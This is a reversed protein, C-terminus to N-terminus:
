CITIKIILLIKKEYFEERSPLNTITGDLDIIMLTKIPMKGKLGLLFLCDHYLNSKYLEENTIKHLKKLPHLKIHTFSTLQLFNIEQILNSFAKHLIKRNKEKELIYPIIRTFFDSKLFNIGQILNCLAKHLIAKNKEKKLRYAIPSDIIKRVQSSSKKFRDSKIYETLSKPTAFDIDFHIGNEDVKIKIGAGMQESTDIQANKMSGISASRKLRSPFKIEPLFLTFFPTKDNLDTKYSFPTWYKREDDLNMGGILKACYEESYGVDTNIIYPIENDDNEDSDLNNENSVKKEEESEQNENKLKPCMGISSTYTVCASFVSIALYILLNTAKYSFKNKIGSIPKNKLFEPFMYLRDNIFGLGNLIMGTVRQGM